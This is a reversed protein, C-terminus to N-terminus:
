RLPASPIEKLGKPPKAVIAKAIAIKDSANAREPDLLSRGSAEVWPGYKRYGEESTNV